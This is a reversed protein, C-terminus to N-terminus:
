LSCEGDECSIHNYVQQDRCGDRFVTVGKLGMKWGQKYIAKVTEVTANHPLNITSSISSDIIENQWVSQIRLRWWPEIEHATRVYKSDYIDRKEKLIGVTLHREYERDFIPETAPSCDLLISCTGTPPLSRKYASNPALTNTIEVYPKGIERILDIHEESDYYIGLKILLDAMGAIGLGIPNYKNMMETIEDLPYWAIKNINLLAKTGLEVYRAFGESDFTDGKVFKSINISGLNCMVNPPLPLESCLNAARIDEDFPNDVAIRDYFIVGPCGCQHAAFAMLDLINKADVYDWVHGDKPNYLPISEGLECKKFFDDTVLVSLNFNTFGGKLKCTIFDLIEPHDVDLVGLIGGKRFGGEKVCEITENFVKMFSIVGSTEGGSSLSDGKPRLPSYSMGVGAGYHFLIAVNKLTEYISEINDYIPLVACPHLLRKEFGANRLTPSAPMFYGHIMADYLDEEFRVDGMSLTRAVRLFVDTVTEGKACFRQKVINVANESLM